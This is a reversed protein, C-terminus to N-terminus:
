VLQLGKCCCFLPHNSDGTTGERATGVATVRPARGLQGNRGLHLSDM